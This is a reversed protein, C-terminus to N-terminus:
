YKSCLIQSCNCSVVRARDVVLAVMSLGIRGTKVQAVCRTCSLYKPRSTHRSSPQKTPETKIEKGAPRQAQLPLEQQEVAAKNGGQGNPLGGLPRPVLGYCLSADPGLANHMSAACEGQWYSQSPERTKCPGVFASRVITQCPTNPPCQSTHNDWFGSM